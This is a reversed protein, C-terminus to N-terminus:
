RITFVGNVTDFSYTSPAQDFLVCYLDSICFNGGGWGERKKTFFGIEMDEYVLQQVLIIDPQLSIPIPLKTKGPFPRDGLSFNIGGGHTFDNNRYPASAKLPPLSPILEIKSILFFFLHGLFKARGM